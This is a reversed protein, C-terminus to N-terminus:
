EFVSLIEKIVYYEPNILKMMGTSLGIAMVVILVVWIFPFLFWIVGDEVFDSDRLKAYMNAPEQSFYSDERKEYQAKTFIGIVFKVSVILLTLAMISFFLDILGEAIQQKYLTEYVQKSAVGLKESLTEIYKNIM